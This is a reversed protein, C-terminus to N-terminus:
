GFVFIVKGLIRGRPITGIEELRSDMAIGRNDGMVFFSNYPVTYPFSINCQGFTPDEVYDEALAMGDVTVVGADSIELSTGGAAIVRRVLVKNNYYFAAIDGQEVQDTKLVLLVQRKRLLTCCFFCPYVCEAACCSDARYVCCHDTRDASVSDEAEHTEWLQIGAKAGRDGKLFICFECIFIIAGECM